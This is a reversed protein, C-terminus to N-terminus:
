RRGQFYKAINGMNPNAADGQGALQADAAAQIAALRNMPQGQPMAQPMAQPMPQQMPMDVPMAGLPAVAQGISQALAMEEQTMKGSPKSVRLLYAMDQPAYNAM